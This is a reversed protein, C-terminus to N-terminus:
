RLCVPPAEKKSIRPADLNTYELIGLEPDFLKTYTPNTYKINIHSDLIPMYLIYNM